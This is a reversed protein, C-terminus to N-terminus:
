KPMVGTRKQEQQEVWKEVEERILVAYDPYEMTLDFM